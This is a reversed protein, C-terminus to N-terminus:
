STMASITPARLLYLGFGLTAQGWKLYAARWGRLREQMMAIEPDSPNEEFYSRLNAAYNDEYEIWEAATAFHSQLVEYGLEQALSQNGAHSLLDDKECQLFELYSRPPDKKWYGEGILVLRGPKVLRAFTRLAQRYDGMAQSSGICVALDFSQAPYEQALFNKCQLDLRAQPFRLTKQQHALEIAIPSREVGIAHCSYRELVHLLLEARGCGVDLVRSSRILEFQPLWSQLLDASVPNWYVMGTHGIASYKDSNM